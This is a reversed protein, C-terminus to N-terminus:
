FGEIVAWAIVPDAIHEDVDFGSGDAFVYATSISFETRVLFTRDLGLDNTRVETPPMGVEAIVYWKPATAKINM